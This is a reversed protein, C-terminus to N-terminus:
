GSCWRHQPYRSFGLSKLWKYINVEIIWCNLDCGELDFITPKLGVQLSSRCHYSENLRSKHSLPCPTWLCSINQYTTVLLDHEVGAPWFKPHLNEQRNEQWMLRFAMVHAELGLLTNYIKKIRIMFGFASFFVASWSFDGASLSTYRIQLGCASQGNQKPVHKHHRNSFRPILSATWPM